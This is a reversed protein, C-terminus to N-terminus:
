IGQMICHKAKCEDGNYRVLMNMVHEPTCVGEVLEKFTYKGGKLITDYICGIKKWTMSIEDRNCTTNLSNPLGGRRSKMYELLRCADYGDEEDMIDVLCTCVSFMNVFSQGCLWFLEELRGVDKEKCM